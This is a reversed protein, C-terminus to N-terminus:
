PSLFALFLLTLHLAHILVGMRMCVTMCARLTVCACTCMYVRLWERVCVCVAVYACECMYVRVCVRVCAGAFVRARVCAAKSFPVAVM